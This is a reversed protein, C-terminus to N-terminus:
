GHEAVLTLYTECIRALANGNSNENPSDVFAGQSKALDIAAKVQEAQEDHLTFTMQQFPARDGTALGGWAEGWEGESPLSALLIDLETSSFMRSFDFGANVDALLQEVDWQLDVSAVRNDFFAMKRAPNNPDDSALDLDDRQVVVLEDGRTHVVIADEFGRDIARETTKNGGIIIGNKDTVISRGLGVLSLSDDLMQLGRETGLNANNPDPTLEAIKKREIRPETSKKTAM